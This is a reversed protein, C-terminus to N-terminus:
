SGLTVERAASREATQGRRLGIVNAFCVVVALAPGALSLYLHFTAISHTNYFRMVADQHREPLSSLSSLSGALDSQARFRVSASPVVSLVYLLGTLALLLGAVNIRWLVKHRM